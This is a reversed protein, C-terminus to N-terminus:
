TSIRLAEANRYAIPAQNVYPTSEYLERSIAPVDQQDIKSGTIVTRASWSGILADWRLSASIRDYPADDFWNDSHTLNVDARVGHDGWTSGGTAMLRRYGNGGGETNVEVSPSFPPPQTMVNVIGGIADSGYLATGPG